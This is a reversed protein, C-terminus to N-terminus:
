SSINAAQMTECGICTNLFCLKDKNYQFAVSSDYGYDSSSFSNITYLVTGIKKNYIYKPQNLDKILLSLLVSFIITIMITPIINGCHIKTM